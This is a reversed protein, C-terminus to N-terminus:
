GVRANITIGQYLRVGKKSRTQLIGEDLPEVRRGNTGLLSTASLGDTIRKLYFRGL